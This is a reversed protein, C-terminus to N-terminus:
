LIVFTDGSAPAVALAAGTFDLVGGTNTYDKIDTAEGEANGSTFIVTRGILQDDSYGTLDTDTSTTTPTGTCAGFIVTHAGVAMSWPMITYTETTIGTIVPPSFTITDSSATFGTILRVAGVNNASGGSGFKIVSWKWHNDSAETRAADVMTTTSGSDSTGSASVLVAYSDGTQATHGTLTAVQSVVGSSTTIANGDSVIETAAIDNFSTKGTSDTPLGGAAGAAANPLPNTTGLSVGNWSTTDVGDSSPDFYAATALTRTAIYTQSMVGDQTISSTTGNDTISCNGRVTLTISTCTADIIIQGDSEYSMTTTAVANNVQVGGSYHRWSIDVNAVSNIDLIPTGNGAVASWCKDFYCDDRVTLNNVIACEWAICELGTTTSLAVRHAMLRGAGGQAGSILVNEFYANDVDQSGLNVTNSAIDGLGIFEYDQMTAALTIASDNVLYIRDLSLSDAITKAAGITSVPNSITGDVGNATNTNAAEDNLYVGPGRPGMYAVFFGEVGNFITELNDASTADGSIATVDASARGGSTTIAGSSVIATAAIDNFSTKGTSDTPLGTAAGAAANPLPNTTALLVDNWSAVNVEPMGPQAEPEVIRFHAIV